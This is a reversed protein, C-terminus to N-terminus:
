HNFIVITWEPVSALHALFETNVKNAGGDRRVMKRCSKIVKITKVINKFFEKIM